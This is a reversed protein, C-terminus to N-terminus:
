EGGTKQKGNRAISYDFVMGFQMVWQIGILITDPGNAIHIGGGSHSLSDIM